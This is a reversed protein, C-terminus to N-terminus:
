DSLILLILQIKKLMKRVFISLGLRRRRLLVLGNDERVNNQPRQRWASQTPDIEDPFQNQLLYIGFIGYIWDLFVFILLSDM